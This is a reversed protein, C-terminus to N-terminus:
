HLIVGRTKTNHKNYNCSDQAKHDQPRLRMTGAGSTRVKPWIRSASLKNHEKKAAREMESRKSLSLFGVPATLEIKGSNKSSNRGTFTKGGAGFTEGVLEM